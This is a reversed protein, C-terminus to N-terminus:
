LMWWVSDHSVPLYYCFSKEMMEDNTHYNLTSIGATRSVTCIRAETGERVSMQHLIHYSCTAYDHLESSWVPHWDPHRLVSLHCCVIQERKQVALKEQREQKYPEGSNSAKLGRQSTKGLNLGPCHQQPTKLVGRFKVKSNGKNKSNEKYPM